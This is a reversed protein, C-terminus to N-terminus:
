YFVVNLNVYKSFVENLKTTNMDCGHIELYELNCNNALVALVIDAVTDSIAINNLRLSKLCKLNVMAEFIINKKVEPIVCDSLDLSQLLKNNTIFTALNCADSDTFHASNIRINTLGKIILICNGLQKLGSNSLTLESFKLEVIDVNTTVLIALDGVLNDNVQNSSFDIHRLSKVSKIGDFICSMMKNPLSCSPLTFNNIHHNNSIVTTIDGVVTPDVEITNFNLNLYRLSSYCKLQTIVKHMCQSSLACNFLSLFQLTDNEFTKQNLECNTALSVSNHSIDLYKLEKLSLLTLIWYFDTVNCSSMKLEDVAASDKILDVLLAVNEISFLNGSVNLHLEKHNRIALLLKEIGSNSLQCEAVELCRLTVNGSIIAALKNELQTDITIGCINFSQLSGFSVLISFIEVKEIFSIVCHSLDLNQVMPNNGLLFVMKKLNEITVYATLHKLDRLKTINDKSLVEFGQQSLSLKSLRLQKLNKNNNLIINILQADIEITGLDLIHLSLVTQLSKIMISSSAITCKCNPLCLVKIDENNDIMEAVHVTSDEEMENCSLDIFNFSNNVSSLTLIIDKSDVCMLGCNQLNIHELHKCSSLLLSLSSVVSKACGTIINHSFNVYQLKNCLSISQWIQIIGDNDFDCAVMEIHELIKDNGKIVAAIETAYYCINKNNSLNLHVINSHKQLADCILHLGKTDFDCSAMNIHSLAKSCTLIFAAIEGSIKSYSLDLFGNYCLFVKWLHSDQCKSDFKCKVMAFHDLSKSNYAIDLVDVLMQEGFNTDRILIRRLINSKFKYVIQNDGKLHFNRVITVNSIDLCCLKECSEVIESIGNYLQCDHLILTNIIPNCMVLQKLITWEKFHFTCGIICLHQIGMFKLLGYGFHQLMKQTVILKVLIILGRSSEILTAEDIMSYLDLENITLDQYTLLISEKIANLIKFQVNRSVCNLLGQALAMIDENTGILTAVEIMLSDIISSTITKLYNSRILLAYKPLNLVAINKNNTILTVINNVSVGAAYNCSLNFHELSNMNTAAQIIGNVETASLRYNCILSIHKLRMNCTLVTILHKVVEFPFFYHNFNIYLLNKLGKAISYMVKTLATAKIDCMSITFHSLRPNNEIVITILDEMKEAFTVNIFSLSKVSSLNTLSSFTEFCSQSFNYCSLNFEKICENNTIVTAVTLNDEYDSREYDTINLHVIGKMLKLSKQMELLDVVLKSIRLNVNNTMVAVIIDDTLTCNTKDFFHKLNETTEHKVEDICLIDTVKLHQFLLINLKCLAKYIIKRQKVSMQCATLSFNQITAANTTILYAMYDAYYATFTCNEIHLLKLGRITIANISLVKMNDQNLILKSMIFEGLNNDVTMVAVVDDDTLSFNSANCHVLTNTSLSHRINKNGLNTVTITKLKLCHMYLTTAIRSLHIIDEVSIECDLLCLKCLTPNNTIFFVLIKVDEDTFFCDQMIISELGKIVHLYPKIQHFKSNDLVLNSLWLQELHKNDALLGAVQDIDLCKGDIKNLSLDIFKLSSLLKLANMVIKVGSSKLNCSCLNLYELKVNTAIVLAVYDVAEDDISNYSLDLYTLNTVSLPTTNETIVSAIGTDKLGCNHLDLFTLTACPTLLPLIETLAFRNNSLNLHLLNRNNQLAKFCETASTNLFFGRAMELHELKPSNTILSAVTKVAKDVYCINNVNLYNLSYLLHETEQNLNLQYLGETSFCIHKNGESVIIVNKFDSVMCKPIKNPGLDIFKLHLMKEKLVSIKDIENQKMVYYPLYLYEILKLSFLLPMIDIDITNLSIDLYTIHITQLSSVVVTVGESQLKCDCLDLHELGNNNLIIASLIEAGQDTIPNHSLNLHKLRMLSTLSLYSFKNINLHVNSINLHTVTNCIQRKFQRTDQSILNDMDSLVLHSLRKMDFSHICKILGGILKCGILKFHKMEISNELLSAIGDEMEDTIVINILCFYKLTTIKGIVNGINIELLECSELHLHQLSPSNNILDVTVDVENETDSFYISIHQLNMLIRFINKSINTSTVDVESIQFSILAPNEEILGQLELLLLEKNASYSTLNVYHLSHISQLAKVIVMVEEDQLLSNALNLHQLYYSVSILQAVNEANDNLNNGSLDLRQLLPAQLLLTNLVSSCCSKQLNCYSLNFQTICNNAVVETIKSGKNSVVNSVSLTLYKLMYAKSLVNLLITIGTEHFDNNTFELEKMMCNVSMADAIAQAARDSIVCNNLKLSKLTNIRKAAKFIKLIGYEQIQSNSINLDTLQTNYDIVDTIENVAHNTIVNSSINFHKLATLDRLSLLISKMGKDTLNCNSLDVKELFPNNSILTAVKTADNYDVLNSKLCLDTFYQNDQMAIIIRLFTSKHLECNSFYLEELFPNNSIISSVNEASTINVVNSSLDLHHLLKLNVLSETIKNFDKLKNCCNSINLHKLSTNGHLLLLFNDVAVDTFLNNSFNLYVLSTLTEMAQFLQQCGTNQLECNSFDLSQLDKNNFIVTAIHMAIQDSIINGSLDICHLCTKTIMAEVIRQLGIYQLKCNHVKLVKVSHCKLVIAVQIAAGNTIVNNSLDLSQLDKSSELSNTISMIATGQLNCNSLEISQLSNNCTIVSAIIESVEKSLNNDSLTITKFTVIHKLAKSIVLISENNFNCGSLNLHELSTAKSIVRLLVDTVVTIDLTCCNILQLSKLALCDVSIKSIFYNHLIIDNLYIQNLNSKAIFLCFLSHMLQISLNGRFFTTGPSNLAEDKDDIGDSVIYLQLPLCNDGLCVALPASCALNNITGIVKQTAFDVGKIFLKFNTSFFTMKNMLRHVMTGFTSMSNLFMEFFSSNNEVYFYIDKYTEKTCCFMLFLESVTPGDFAKKYLVLVVQYEDKIEIIRSQVLNSHDLLASFIDHDIGIDRIKNSDIIIQKGNFGLILNAMNLASLKTFNNYSLNITNIYVASKTLSAYSKCFTEFNEDDLYCNSLDLLNWQRRVCHALFSSLTYLDIASLVHGSLDIIGDELLESVYHCMDDNGAETFCQFLHLCKIKNEKMEKSISTYTNNRSLWIFIKTSIQFRNGSLFHKFAFPRDKTLAVYMIWTNFYRSNWFTEKLLEIQQSKPMLSIHYAALLEQVSYHLFNFSLEDSNEELSFFQVAKLLDLGSWHKAESLLNPCFDKIESATFVIKRDQLARFALNSIELLIHKHSAPVESFNRISLLERQSRKIFRRITICIFKYNIATQTAPLENINYGCEKFLFVLIAMSLPIHCYADVSYTSELYELLHQIAESNDKLAHMIYSKRHKKTFGLIEVRLDSSNHLCASASPRSTVVINCSQLELVRHNIIDYLYSNTRDSEPYEDYGDFVFTIRKGSNSGVYQEINKSIQSYSVYKIFSEFTNLEKTKPDRLYILFVLRENKLLNGNAWQFVIEKSLITKGIGPAGEILLTYPHSVCEVSAFIDAINTTVTSIEAFDSNMSSYIGSETFNGKQHMNAFVIIEKKTKHRKQHILAVSTFHEPASFWDDQVARYRTDIHRAKLKNELKEVDEIPSKIFTDIIEVVAPSNIVNILKRWTATNDADLWVRLMENCREEVDTPFNIEISQLIGKQIGLQLGIEKWSVAYNPAVLNQLEKLHPRKSLVTPM